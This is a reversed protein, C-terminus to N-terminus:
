IELAEAWANAAPEKEIYGVEATAEHKTDKLCFALAERFSMALFDAKTEDRLADAQAPDSRWFGVLIKANGLYRRLRRNTFRARAASLNGDLYSLCM